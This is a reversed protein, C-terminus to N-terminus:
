HTAVRKKFLRRVIFDIGLGALVAVVISIMGYLAGREKALDALMAPFGVEVVKLPVQLDDGAVGAQCTGVSVMYTGPGASKPWDFALAYRERGGEVRTAQIGGGEVHYSAQLIKLKLYDDALRDEGKQAPRIKISRKVAAADLQQRDLEARSLCSELPASSFVLLLSPVGSVLVNGTKVWIPGVREVRRFAETVGVGRVAVIVDAGAPATGEVHVRAGGYFTGMRVVPPTLKVTVPEPPTAAYAVVAPLAVLFALLLLVARHRM